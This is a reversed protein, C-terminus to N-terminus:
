IFQKRYNYQVQNVWFHRSAAPSDSRRMNTQLGESKQSESQESKSAAKKKRRLEERRYFEREAKKQEAFTALDM